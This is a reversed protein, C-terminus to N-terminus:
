LPMGEEEEEEVSAAAPKKAVKKPGTTAPQKAKWAAQMKAVYEALNNGLAFLSPYHLEAFESGFEETCVENVEDEDFSTGMGASVLAKSIKKSAPGRLEADALMLQPRLVKGADTKPNENDLGWQILAPLKDEEYDGLKVGKHLAERWGVPEVGGADGSTTPTQSATAGDSKFPSKGLDDAFYPARHIYGEKFSMIVGTSIEKIDSSGLGAIMEDPDKGAELCVRNFVKFFNAVRTEVPEDTPAAREDSRYSTSQTVPESSQSGGSPAQATSGDGSGAVHEVWNSGEQIEIKAPFKINVTRKPKGNVQKEVLEIGKLKGKYEQATVRITKNKANTPLTHEEDMFAIEHKLQGDSLTGNQITWPGYQGEGKKPDFLGTLKGQIQVIPSGSALEPLTSFKIPTMPTKSDKQTPKTEVSSHFEAGLIQERDDFEKSWKGPFGKAGAQPGKLYLTYERAM